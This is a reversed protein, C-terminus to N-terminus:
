RIRRPFRRFSERWYAWRLSVIKQEFHYDLYDVKAELAARAVNQVCSIATTADIVLTRGKFVAVLSDYDSADAFVASVNKSPFERSLAAAFEEAKSINRGAIILAVDAEEMLRRCVVRGTSGYGGLILITKSTM